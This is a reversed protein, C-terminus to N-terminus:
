QSILKLFTNEKPIKVRIIM